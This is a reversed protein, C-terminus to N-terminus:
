DVFRRGAGKDAFEAQPFRWFGPRPAMPPPPPPPPIAGNGGEVVVDVDPRVETSAQHCFRMEEPLVAAESRTFNREVEMPAREQQGDSEEDAVIERLVRNLNAVCGNSDEEEDENGLQSASLVFEKFLLFDAIKRTVIGLSLISHLRRATFHRRVAVRCQSQLSLPEESIIIM